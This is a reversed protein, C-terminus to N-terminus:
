LRRFRPAPTLWACWASAAPTSPSPSPTRRPRLAVARRATPARRIAPRTAETQTMTPADTASAPVSVGCGRVVRCSAVGRRVVSACDRVAAVACTAGAARTVEAAALTSVLVTRAGLEGSGNVPSRMGRAIENAPPRSTTSPMNTCIETCGNGLVRRFGWLARQHRQQAVIACGTPMLARRTRPM